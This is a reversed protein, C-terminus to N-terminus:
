VPAVPSGLRQPPRNPPAAATVPAAAQFQQLAQLATLGGFPLANNSPPAPNERPPPAPNERPPVAANERSPVAANERPPLAANEQPPAVPELLEGCEPCYEGPGPYREVPKANAAAPCTPNRCIGQTM